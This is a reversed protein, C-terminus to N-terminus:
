VDLDPHEQVYKAQRVGFNEQLQITLGGDVPLAHGTIFSAEDSVLFRFLIM